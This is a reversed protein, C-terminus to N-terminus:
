KDASETKVAIAYIDGPNSWNDILVCGFPALWDRLCSESVNGYYEGPRLAGGDVASHPSRPPAAATIILVGGVNLIKHANECVEKGRPTHELM